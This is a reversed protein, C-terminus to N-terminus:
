SFKDVLEKVKKYTEDPNKIDQIRIGRRAGTAATSLTITGLGYQKQFIGKSLNAEIIRKYHITKEEVTFFGEYYELKDPFFRYETLAYTKQAASYTILPIGFLFLLGIIWFHTSGQPRIFVELMGGFFGGGWFAFFIALPITASCVIKPVFTPKLTLVLKDPKVVDESKHGNTLPRGCAKCFKSDNPNEVGCQNCFM